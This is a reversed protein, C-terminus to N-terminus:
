YKAATAMFEAMTERNIVGQVRSRVIGKRDVFFSTPVGLLSYAKAAKGGDHVVPFTLGLQRAFTLLQEATETDDYGVAVIHLKPGQEQWLAQLDPMEVKCPACWTAFFNVLAPKGGLDALAFPIGGQLEQGVIIPAPYGPFAMPRRSAPDTGPPTEAPRPTAEPPATAPGPPNAAPAPPRASCAALTLSFALACLIIGGVRRPKAM